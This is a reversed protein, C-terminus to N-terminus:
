YRLDFETMVGAAPISSHVKARAQPWAAIERDLVNQRLTPILVWARGRPLLSVLGQLAHLCANLLYWFCCFEKLNLKWICYLSHCKLGYVFTAAWCSPFWKMTQTLLCLAIPLHIRYGNQHGVKSWSFGRDSFCKYGRQLTRATQKSLACCGLDSTSYTDFGTNPWCCEKLDLKTLYHDALRAM